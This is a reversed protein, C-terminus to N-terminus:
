PSAVRFGQISFITGPGAQGRRSSRVSGVNNHFAGGRAGRSTTLIITENWEWVNGGMDFAGYFSASGAGGSGVTTVNGDQGDWDAGNLYNAINGDDNIIEGIANVTGVTPSDNSGSAYFWYDDADGGEAAPQHYAAKYWEDESPIFFKAGVNRTVTNAAITGATLAYAGDETTSNDQAGVLRGNHLWNCFRCINWFSVLNVPKDGMATKTAYSFNPSTGVQVIGGWANSEMSADFLGNPDEAAVANLFAVYQANTVEYKGIQFAEAVAGFNQEPDNGNGPNGVTVMEIFPEPEPEPEPEPAPRRAVALQRKLKKVQRKLKKVLRTLSAQSAAELEPTLFAPGAAGLILSLCLAWAVFKKTPFWSNMRLPSPKKFLTGTEVGTLADRENKPRQESM